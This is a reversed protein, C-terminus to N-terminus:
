RTWDLKESFPLVADSDLFVPICGSQMVDYLLTNPPQAQDILCFLSSSTATKQSMSIKKFSYDKARYVIFTSPMQKAKIIISTPLGNESDQHNRLLQDLYKQFDFDFHDQVM